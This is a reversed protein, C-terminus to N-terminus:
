WGEPLCGQSLAECATVLETGTVRKLRSTAHGDAKSALRVKEAVARQRFSLIQRPYSRSGVRFAYVKVPASV